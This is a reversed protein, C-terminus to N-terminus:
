KFLKSLLAIGGVGEGLLLAHKGLKRVANAVRIRKLTDPFEALLRKAAGEVEVDGFNTQLNKALNGPKIKTRILNYDNIVKGYDARVDKLQPFAELMQAKINHVADLLPIDDSRVGLGRLKTSPIKSQLDNVLSQAEKLPIKDALKPENLIQDLLPVRNIANRLKPEYAIEQVLQDVVPRLSVFDNPNDNALRELGAGFKDVASTKADFFSSRVDSLYKSKNTLVDEIVRPIRANAVALPAGLSMALGSIAGSPTEPKPMLGSSPLPEKKGIFQALLNAGKAIGAGPLGAIKSENPQEVVSSLAGGTFSDLVSSAIYPVDGPKNTMFPGALLSDLSSGSKSESRTESSSSERRALERRALEALAQQKTTM